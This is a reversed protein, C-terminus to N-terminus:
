VKRPAAGRVYPAVRLLYDEATTFGRSYLETGPAPAKDFLEFADLVAELTCVCTQGNANTYSRVYEGAFSRARERAQAEDGAEVLYLIEEFSPVDNPDEPVSNRLLVSATFYM